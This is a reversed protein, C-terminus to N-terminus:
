INISTNKHQAILTDVNTPGGSIVNPEVFTPVNTVDYHVLDNPGILLSLREHIRAM